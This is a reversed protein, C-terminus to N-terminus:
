DVIKWQWTVQYPYVEYLSSDETFSYGKKYDQIGAQMCAKAQNPKGLAELCKAKYYKADSFQPYLRLAEDFALIAKETEDLEFHCIGLYFLDVFHVWDRGREKTAAEVEVTLIKLARSPENLQLYCLAMYFEHSHDQEFGRGFERKYLNFTRLAEEYNKSFICQLFAFRGLYNRRDLQVAKRFYFKAQDYKRTKWYPMAKQQWLVAITSDQQIGLDIWRQWEKELYHHNWAGSKLYKDIIAQQEKEKSAAIEKPQSACAFWIFMFLIQILRM